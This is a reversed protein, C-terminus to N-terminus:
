WAPLARFPGRIQMFNPCFLPNNQHFSQNYRSKMNRNVSKTGPGSEPDRNQPFPARIPGPISYPFIREWATGTRSREPHSPPSGEERDRPGMGHPSPTWECFHTPTGRLAGPTPTDGRDSVPPFGARRRIGCHFHRQKRFTKGARLPLSSPYGARDALGWPPPPPAM